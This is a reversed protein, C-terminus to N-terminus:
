ILPALYTYAYLDNIIHFKIKVGAADVIISEGMIEDFEGSGEALLHPKTALLEIVKAWISTVAAKAVCNNRSKGNAHFIAKVVAINMKIAVAMM